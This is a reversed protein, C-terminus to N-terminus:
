FSVQTPLAKVWEEKLANLDVQGKEKETEDGVEAPVSTCRKYVQVFLQIAANRVPVAGHNVGASVLNFASM